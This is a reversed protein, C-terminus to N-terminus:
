LEIEVGTDEPCTFKKTEKKSTKGLLVPIVVISKTDLDRSITINKAGGADLEIIYNQIESTGAKKQKINIEYIPVNGRNVLFLENGEISARFSVDKCSSEVPKDFKEIKEAIFRSAWLFIIIALIIVITILLITSVIPSVSKRNKVKIINKLKGRKKM